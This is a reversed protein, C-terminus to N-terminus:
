PNKKGIQRPVLDSHRSKRKKEKKRKKYFINLIFIKKKKKKRKLRKQVQVTRSEFIFLQCGELLNM